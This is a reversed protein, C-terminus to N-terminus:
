YVNSWLLHLLHHSSSSYILKLEISSSSYIPKSHITPTQQPYIIIYYQNTYRQSNRQRYFQLSVLIKNYYLYKNQQLQSGIIITNTKYIYLLILTGYFSVKAIKKKSFKLLKNFSHM